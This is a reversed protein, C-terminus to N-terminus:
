GIVFLQALVIKAILAVPYVAAYTLNPTESGTHANAFSLAAPQTHIGALIGFASVLDYGFVRCAGVLVAVVSVTTVAAGSLLLVLGQTQITDLFSGGARTGVGALFLLIGLQRLTLNANPPMTWVIPGTRGLRGLVLAVILPGGALGLTLTNGGPLPIPVTGLMVGLILGLSFSLFDAESYDRLPNGVLSIVKDLDAKHAVIRVQDGLELTAEPSPRIGIGGRRIRSVIVPHGVATSLKEASWGVVKRNIVLLDRFEIDSALREIGMEVRPGVLLEARQIATPPGVGVLVDGEAIREQPEVLLV